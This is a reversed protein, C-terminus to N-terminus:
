CPSSRVPLNRGATRLTALMLCLTMPQLPSEIFGCSLYFRRASDSMAHVVVATVGVSESVQLTRLLADRLLLRGLTRNQYRQDIALRGLVLVPIPDPM